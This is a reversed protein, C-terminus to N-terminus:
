IPTRVSLTPPLLSPGRSPWAAFIVSSLSPFAQIFWWLFVM